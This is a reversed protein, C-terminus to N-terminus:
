LTKYIFFFISLSFCIITILILLNKAGIENKTIKKEVLWNVFSGFNIKPIMKNYVRNFKKEEEFEVSM